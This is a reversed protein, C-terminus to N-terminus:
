ILERQISSAKKCIWGVMQKCYHRVKDKPLDSSIGVKRYGLGMNWLREITQQQEKIM